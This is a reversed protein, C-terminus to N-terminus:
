NSKMRYCHLKTFLQVTSWQVKKLEQNIYLVGGAWIVAFAWTNQPIVILDGDTYSPRPIRYGWCYLDNLIKRRSAEYWEDNFPPGVVGTRSWVEYVLHICDIHGDSLDSRLRFPVGILNSCDSM